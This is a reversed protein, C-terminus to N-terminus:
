ARSLMVTPTRSSVMGRPRLVMVVVLALGFILMRYLPLENAIGAFLESGMQDALWVYSATIADQVDKTGYLDHAAQALVRRLGLPDDDPRDLKDILRNSRPPSEMM